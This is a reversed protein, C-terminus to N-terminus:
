KSLMHLIKYHIENRIIVDDYLSVDLLNARRKQNQKENFFVFVDMHTDYTEKTIKSNDVVANDVINSVPTILITSNM